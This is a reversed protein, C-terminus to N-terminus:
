AAAGESAPQAAERGRCAAIARQVSRLDITDTQTAALAAHAFESIRGGAIEVARVGELAELVPRVVRESTVPKLECGICMGTFRVRVTGTGDVSQLELGGAHSRLLTHLAEVAFRVDDM